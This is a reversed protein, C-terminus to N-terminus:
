VRKLPSRITQTSRHRMHKGNEPVSLVISGTIFEIYPRGGKVTLLPPINRDWQNMTMKVLPGNKSFRNERMAPFKVCSANLERLFVITLQLIKLSSRKTTQCRTNFNKQLMSSSAFFQGLHMAESTSLRSFQNSIHHITITCRHQNKAKPQKVKKVNGLAQSPEFHWSDSGSDSKPTQMTHTGVRSKLFCLRCVLQSVYSKAAKTLCYDICVTVHCISVFSHCTIAHESTTNM